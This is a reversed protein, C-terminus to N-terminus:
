QHRMIEELLENFRPMDPLMGMGVRHHNRGTLASARTPSCVATTHFNTFRLGREALRDINPTDILSGYCGLQGFGCDDLVMMIVNPAGRRYPDAPRPMRSENLTLGIHTDVDSM